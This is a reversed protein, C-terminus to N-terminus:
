STTVVFEVAGIAKVAIAQLPNHFENTAVGIAPVTVFM